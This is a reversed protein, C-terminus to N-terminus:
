RSSECTYRTWLVKQIDDDLRMDKAIKNVAINLIGSNKQPSKRNPTTKKASDRWTYIYRENKSPKNSVKQQLNDKPLTFHVTKKDKNPFIFTM